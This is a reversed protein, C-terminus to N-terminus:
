KPMDDPYLQALSGAKPAQQMPAGGRATPPIQRAARVPEMRRKMLDRYKEADAKWNLATRLAMIDTAGAQAMLDRSYGLEAGIPELKQLLNARETPDAWEPIAEVLAAHESQWEQQQQQEALQDAERRAQEARQQFEGMQAMGLRYQRDQETYLAHHQPDSSQLLRIDPAQPMFQQALTDYQEASQRKIQEVQGFAEREVQQKTTAVANQARRVEVDRERERTAIVEQVDRPVSAWKEKADKAWSSPAEIPNPDPLDDTQEDADADPVVPEAAPDAAPAEAEQERPKDDAYLAEIGTKAPAAVPQAEPAVTSALATEPQTAELM